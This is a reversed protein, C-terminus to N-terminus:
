PCPPQVPRLGDGAGARHGSRGTRGRCRPRCTGCRRPRPCGDDPTRGRGGEGLQRPVGAENVDLRARRDVDLVLTAAVRGEQQEAPVGSRTVVPVIATLMSAVGLFANAVATSQGPQDREPLVSSSATAASVAVRRAVGHDGCLGAHRELRVVVLDDLAGAATAAGVEADRRRDGVQIAPGHIGGLGLSLCADDSRGPGDEAADGRPRGGVQPFAWAAAAPIAVLHDTVDCLGVAVVGALDADGALLRGSRGRPSRPAGRRSAGSGGGDRPRNPARRSSRSRGSRRAGFRRARVRGRRPSPLGSRGRRVFISGFRTPRGSMLM